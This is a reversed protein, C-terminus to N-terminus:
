QYGNTKSRGTFAAMYSTKYWNLALYWKFETKCINNIQRLNKRIKNKFSLFSLQTSM